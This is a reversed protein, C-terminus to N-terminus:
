CLIVNFLPSKQHRISFTNKATAEKYDKNKDEKEQKNNVWLCYPELPKNLIM